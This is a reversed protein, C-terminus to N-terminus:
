FPFDNGLGLDDLEDNSLVPAVRAVANCVCAVVVAEQELPMGNDAKLYPLLTDLHRHVDNPSINTFVGITRMVAVVDNCFTVRSKSRNEEVRLLIEFLADVLMGYQGQALTRRKRRSSTTNGKDGDTESELLDRFLNKLYEGSNAEKAVEVMQEAAIESRAQLRRKRIRRETSRTERVTTSPSFAQIPHRTPTLPGLAGAQAVQVDLVKSSPSCIEMDPSPPSAFQDVKEDANELWIKLFLDHIADRVSDDEKPDAALSLMTTCAEARGKYAPNSCLIDQLIKITRKRVSVGPDQLGVMFAPHFANAVVPSHVVYLGVLSVAAERVSIAEDSFRKTVSNRVFPYIM